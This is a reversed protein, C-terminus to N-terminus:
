GSRVARDCWARWMRRYAAELDATFGAADMIPSALLRARLGARLTQLTLPDEALRRAIALYQEESGAILGSLGCNSLMSVGARSVCSSGALTVVPVGNWLSDLTTTAGNYPFPDLAIDARAVMEHFRQPSVGAEIQLRGSAIGLSQFRERLAASASGRPVTVIFLHAQPLEALLRAWLALAAESLKACANFSGFTIHGNRLAPLPTLPNAVPPRYCWYTHPLRHLKETYLQETLGPPDCYPDTLRYDMAALGTTAPYSLWSVQVPAPKRAFTLLRNDGLHGSLDVLVDIGDDRIAAAAAADDMDRIERWHEAQRRLRESWPGQQKGNHYLFVEVEAREHHRFVDELYCGNIQNGFDFAVYGLRLRREPDPVNAHAGAAAPQAFRRAWACHEAFIAQADWRASFCGALCLASHISASEPALALTARYLEIEEDVRGLARLVQGMSQRARIDAPAAALSEAILEQALDFDGRHMAILGLYHLAVPHQPVDRLLTQYAPEAEGLRGAKHHTIAATLLADQADAGAPAAPKASRGTLLNRLIRFAM